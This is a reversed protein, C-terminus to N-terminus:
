VLSPAAQTPQAQRTGRRRREFFVGVALLVIITTANVATQLIWGAGFTVFMLSGLLALVSTVAFVELSNKGCAEIPALVKLQVLSKLWNSTFLLYALALVNLLRLPDLSSKHTYLTVLSLDPLGITSWPTSQLFCFSLVLWCIASLWPYRPLAGESRQVWVALAAGLAFLFQWGFPNFFWGGGFLVDPLNVHAIQSLGLWIAGSLTLTISVGLYRMGVFILPFCALLVIYLPLINMYGPQGFLTLCKLFGVWGERIADTVAGIIPTTEGIGFLWSWMCTIGMMSVMIGVQAYYLRACRKAIRVGGSLLGNKVIGTGYAYTSAFGALLVFVEAADCLGFNRLTFNGLVNKDTHDILIMLLALGRVVDVRKDRTTRKSTVDLRTM